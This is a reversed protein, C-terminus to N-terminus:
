TTMASFQCFINFVCDIFIQGILSIRSFTKFLIRLFGYKEHCQHHNPYQIHYFYVSTFDTKLLFGFKFSNGNEKPRNRKSEPSETKKRAIENEKPRNRKRKPTKTKRLPSETKKQPFVFSLM